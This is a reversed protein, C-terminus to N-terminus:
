APSSWPLSAMKAASFPSNLSSRSKPFFCPFLIGNKKIKMQIIMMIASILLSPRPLPPPPPRSSILTSLLNPRPPTPPPPPLQPPPPPSPPPPPRPPPSPPPPTPPPPPLPPHHLLPPT